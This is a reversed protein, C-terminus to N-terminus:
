FGGKNNMKKRKINLNGSETEKNENKGLIKQIDQNIMETIDFPIFEENTKKTTTYYYNNSSFLNHSHKMDKPDEFSIVKITNPISSPSINYYSNVINSINQENKCENNVKINYQKKIYKERENDCEKNVDEVTYIGHTSLYYIRGKYVQVDDIWEKYKVTRTNQLDELDLFKLGGRYTNMVLLNNCTYSKLQRHKIFSRVKTELNIVIITLATLIVITQKYYKIDKVKAPYVNIKHIRPLPPPNELPLQSYSVKLSLNNNIKTSPPLITSINLSSTKKSIKSSLKTKKTSSKTGKLSTIKGEECKTNVQDGRNIENEEDGGDIEIMYMDHCEEEVVIINKHFWRVLYCNLKIKISRICTYGRYFNIIGDNILLCFENMDENVSFDIVSMNWDRFENFDYSCFGQKTKILIMDSTTDLKLFCVTRVFLNKDGYIEFNRKKHVVFLNENIIKFKFPNSLTKDIEQLNLNVPIKERHPFEIKSKYVPYPIGNEFINVDTYVPMNKIKKIDSPQLILLRKKRNTVPKTKRSM